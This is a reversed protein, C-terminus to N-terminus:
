PSDKEPELAFGNQEAFKAQVNIVKDLYQQEKKSQDLLQEIAAQIEAETSKAHLKDLLPLQNGILDMEFEVFSILAKRLEASGFQDPTNKLEALRKGGYRIIDKKAKVLDTFDKSSRGSVVARGLVSGKEFLSDVTGVLYDNMELATDFKKQAFLPQSAFVLAFIALLALPRFPKNM